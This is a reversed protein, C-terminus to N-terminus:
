KGTQSHPATVGKSEPSDKERLWISLIVLSAIALFESQWNQLSEFWFRASAMYGLVGVAPHGHELAQDNYQHVGCVAHGFFSVAFLLLLAASLSHSYCWSRWGSTKSLPPSDPQPAPDIADGYPDKSEASGRQVLKATLIVYLGMQLFESEWNEFVAEGFAGTTLYAPLSVQPHHHDVQNNNFDIWGVWTQGLFFLVFLGLVAISLGNDHFFKRTM